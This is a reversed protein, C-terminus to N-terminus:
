FLKHCVPSRGQYYQAFNRKEVLQALAPCLQAVVGNNTYRACSYWSDCDSLVLDSVFNDWM